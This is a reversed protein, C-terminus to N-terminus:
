GVANRSWDPRFLVTKEADYAAVPTKAVILEIDLGIEVSVLPAVEM